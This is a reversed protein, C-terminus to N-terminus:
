RGQFVRKSALDEQTISTLFIDSVNKLDVFSAERPLPPLM